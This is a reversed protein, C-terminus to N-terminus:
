EVGLMKIIDEGVVIAAPLDYNSLVIITYLSILDTAFYANIGAAAGIGRAIGKPTFEDGPSGNFRKLYYNTYKTNLLEHNRLANDFKLMDEITSYGGGAPTGVPPMIYTNNWSFEEDKKNNSVWNPM